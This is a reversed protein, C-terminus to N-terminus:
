FISYKVEIMEPELNSTIKIDNITKHKKTVRM